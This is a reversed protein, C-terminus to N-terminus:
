AVSVKGVDENTRKIGSIQGSFFLSLILGVLVGGAMSLYADVRDAAVGDPALWGKHHALGVVGRSVGVVACLAFTANAWRARIRKRDFPVFALCASGAIVIWDIIIITSMSEFDPPQVKDKVCLLCREVESTWKLHNAATRKWGQHCLCVHPRFVAYSLCVLAPAAPCRAACSTVITGSHALSSWRPLFRM